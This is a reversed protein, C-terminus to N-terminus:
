MATKVKLSAALTNSVAAPRRKVPQEVLAPEIIKYPMLGALPQQFDIAECGGDFISSLM